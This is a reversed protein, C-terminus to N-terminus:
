PLVRSVLQTLAVATAMFTATSVFSAPSGYSNGCMGHGSTCGGATTAGVGMLLGGGLLALGTLWSNGGLARQLGGYRFDLQLAGAVLASLFGGLVIGVLMSRRWGYDTPGQMRALSIYGGLAGFPRNAIALAAVILLGILPGAVFWPPRHSFFENMHGM